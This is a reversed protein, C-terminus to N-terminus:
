GVVADWDPTIVFKGRVPGLAYAKGSAEESVPTPLKTIVADQLFSADLGKNLQLSTGGYDLTIKGSKHVRMKGVAGHPLKPVGLDPVTGPADDEVKVVNDPDSKPAVTTGRKTQKPSPPAAPLDEPDPKVIQSAPRLTPLVPPFQFLYVAESKMRVYEETAEGDTDVDVHGLEDVLTQLDNQYRNWEQEEEETNFTPKKKGGFVRNAGKSKDRTGKRMQEPSRSRAVPPATTMETDDTPEEKIGVANDDERYTGQWVRGEGVVEVDKGKIKSKAKAATTSATHDAENGDLIDEDWEDYGDRASAETNVGMMRDKHEVRKLRVPRMSSARERGQGGDEDDSVLNITDVDRRPGGAEEDESSIYGGDEQKVEQMVTDEDEDDLVVRKGARSPGAVGDETKIQTSTTASSEGKIAGSKSHPVFHKVKGEVTGKSFPGSVGTRRDGMYGGRGRGRRDSNWGQKLRLAQEAARQEKAQRDNWERDRQAQKAAETAGLSDREAQSRRTTTRPAFPKKARPAAARGRGRQSSGQTSATPTQTNGPDIAPTAPADADEEADPSEALNNTATRPDDTPPTGPAAAPEETQGEEDSSVAQLPKRTNAKVAGGRTRKPPM